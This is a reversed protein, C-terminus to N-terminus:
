WGLSLMFTFVISLSLCINLIILITCPKDRHCNSSIAFFHNLFIFEHIVFDSVFVYLLPKRIDSYKFDRMEAFEWFWNCCFLHCIIVSLDILLLFLLSIKSNYSTLSFLKHGLLLNLLTVGCIWSWFIASHYFCAHMHMTFYTIDICATAVYYCLM